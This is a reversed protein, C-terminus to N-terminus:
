GRLKPDSIDRLGDAILNFSFVSLFIALGPFFSLWPANTLQDLGDRIMAGWSPTPPRVGLGIFSLSAEVIIATAVWLTGMVLIEGLINPLIHIFMIKGSNQGVARAAEIYEKGKIALTSGRALRAIRPTLAAAIAIVIKLLGPGMVALVLLGLIVIPFSMFMDIFRNVLNDTRGGKYGGVMGLPIGAAMAFLVSLIGVVLSVRSGWLIRSLQDRGYSDTGFPHEWSPPAHQVNMDQSIPDYPSIWPAILAMMVIMMAMVLGVTSTKNYKFTRIILAKRSVSSM